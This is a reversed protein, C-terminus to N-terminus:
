VTCTQEVVDHVHENGCGSWVTTLKRRAVSLTEQRTATPHSEVCTVAINVRYYLGVQGQGRLM